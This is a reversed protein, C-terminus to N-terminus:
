SVIAAANSIRPCSVRVDVVVVDHVFLCFM